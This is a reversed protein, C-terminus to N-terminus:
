CKNLVSINFIFKCIPPSDDLVSYLHFASPLGVCLRNGIVDLTIAPVPLSIEKKRHHRGKTRNVEYVIVQFM